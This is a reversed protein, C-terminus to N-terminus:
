RMATIQSRVHQQFEEKSQSLFMIVAQTKTLKQAVKASAPDKSAMLNRLAPVCDIASNVSFESTFLSGGRTTKATKMGRHLILEALNADAYSRTEDACVMAHRGPSLAVTQGAFSATIAQKKSDHLDYISTGNSGAVVLVVSDAAIAIEAHPTSVTMNCTPAFVASGSNMKHNASISSNAIAAPRVANPLSDSVLAADLAISVNLDDGYITSLADVSRSTASTSVLPNGIANSLTTTLQSLSSPQDFGNLITNSAPAIASIQDAESSSQSVTPTSSITLANITSDIRHGALVGAPVADGPPDATITVNSGIHINKKSMKDALSIVLDRGLANLAINTSKKTDIGKKPIFVGAGLTETITVGKPAKKRDQYPPVPLPGLAIFVEGVGATTGSGKITTGDNIIIKGTKKNVDLNQLIIDGETSTLQAGTAVTFTGPGTQVIKIDGNDSNVDHVTVPGVALLDVETAASVDLVDVGGTATSQVFVGGGDARFMLQSSNTIFRNNQDTGISGGTSTLFTGLPATITGTLDSNTIDDASSLALTQTTINGAITFSNGADITVSTTAVIAGTNTINVDGLVSTLVVIPSTLTQNSIVIDAGGAATLMLSSYTSIPSNLVIATGGPGAFGILSLNAVDNIGGVPTTIVGSATVNLTLTNNPSSLTGLQLAGADSVIITGDGNANLVNVSSNILATGLGVDVSLTNANLTTGSQGITNGAASAGRLTVSSANAIDGFVLNGNSLTTSTFSGGTATGNSVGINGGTVNPVAVALTVSGNTVTGTTNINGVTIGGEGIITVNGATNGTTTIDGLAITGANLSGTTAIATFKGGNGGSSSLDFDASGMNISGGSVSQNNPTLTYLFGNQVQGSTNPTFDYGAAMLLSGANGTDSLDILTLSGTININGQALIAFNQGAFIVDGSLNVDGTSNAITFFNNQFVLPNGTLTGIQQTTNAQVTVMDHGTIIAGASIVLTAGGSAVATLTTDGFFDQIGTFTLNGFSATINIDNATMTGGSGGNITLPSGPQSQINLTGGATLANTNTLVNTTINLDGAATVNGTTTIPIDSTLNIDNGTTLGLNLSGTGQVNIYIDGTASATLSVPSAGHNIQIFDAAAGIDGGLASFAITGADIIGTGHAIGSGATVSLSAGVINNLIINDTESVTIASGTTSATFSNVNTLVNIVGTGTTISLQGASILRGAGTVTGAGSTTFTIGGNATVNGGVTIDDGTANISLSGAGTSGALLNLDDTETISVNGNTALQLNTVNTNLTTAGTGATIGLTGGTITSTGTITNAGTVLLNVATAGTVAGNVVIAGGTTQLNVTSSTLSGTASVTVDGGTNSIFSIAGGTGTAQAQIQGAGTGVTLDGVGSTVSITGGPGGSVGNALLSINGTGTVNNGQLTITGGARATASTTGGNANLTSVGTFTLDGNPALVSITGGIGETAGVNLSAAIDVGGTGANSALISGGNGTTFGGAANLSAVSNPGGAGLELTSATNTSVNIIGGAGNVNGSVNLAGLIVNGGSRATINGGRVTLAGAVIDSNVLAGGTVTGATIGGTSKSLTVAGNFGSTNLSISGTGAAGGALTIPGNIAVGAFGGAIENKSSVVTVNGNSGAGNGNASIVTTSDTFVEGTDDTGYNALLTINGASGGAVTSNATLNALNNNDFDIRGGKTSPGTVTVSTANQTFNAGSIISINGASSTSSNSSITLGAAATFIDGGAVMLIGGPATVSGNLQLFTGALLSANNGNVTGVVVSSGASVRITSNTGTLNGLQAFGNTLIDIRAGPAVTINDTFINGATNTGTTTFDGSTISGNTKSLVVNPTTDPTSTSVYVNGSGGTGGVTNVSGRLGIANATANGAVVTVNGNVGTGSGGTTIVSTTADTLVEGSAPDSGAFAIMNLDGGSGNAATSRTNIAGTNNFDFDIFGGTASAGTVTVSTANQTFAAGAILSLDGASTTPSFTSLDIFGANAFINRGSVLLIGGPATIDNNLFIDRGATAAVSGSATVTNNLNLDTGAIIRANGTNIQNVSVTGGGTINLVGTAGQLFTSGTVDTGATINVTGANTAGLTTFTASNITLISLAGATLAGAQVSLGSNLTIDAGNSVTVNDIFLDSAAAPGNRFDGATISASNKQIVVNVTTNPTATAAWVDGTGALGGTLNIINRIGLGAGSSAGGIATFNGNAGTGNGGTLIQSTAPDTFVSGTTAAGTGDFAVMTIDGGSGNLFTSRADITNLAVLDFDINGGQASGGTITVSGANQTFAAGAIITIDGASATSTATVLDVGTSNPAIDRGAVLLIGQPATIDNDIDIFGGAVGSFSSNSQIPGGLFLDTGTAIFIRGSTIQAVQTQGGANITLTSTANVGQLINGAFVDNGATVVVTGANTSTFSTDGASTINLASNLGATLALATVDGGSRLTIDAGNSVTVNDIFLNSPAVAGGKFDGTTISASAKQIVVNTPSTVPTATAAYVDGTTLQTTSGTTNVSGRIGIGDGGAAQAIATFDGNAGTGNGGTRIVTLTPDTFVFGTGDTGTFAVMTVDGGSGNTFTSRSDINVIANNDFDIFGGTTSAGTVTVTTATQTFAAGAILTIDGGNATASNSNFSIGAANTIIDEGAVMLIGGPSTVSGNLSIFTGALVASNSATIAGVSVSTGASVRVVSNTAGLNGLQAFSNTLVTVSAGPANTINGAFIAGATNTGTTTFDGATISATTKSIDVNPSTDPVAASLYVNGQGGTGGATNVTGLLGIATFADAGAVVTFNGNVGTGNGGTFIQSTVADTFVSGTTAAGTGDFAVMTIDGGSGNTFTSRADITNLNVFDFDINGGQATGGTITVAGATQTFTAGAVITIDGASATATATRLDVGASNPTIDRGAVLLIGAPATIDNDLSIFGDSVGSFSSNSQIPGGLFLDSGAALFIRGSTIQAVQAQGGATITLQSTANVGQLINGAFVDGGATVNVTGANTSTFSTDGTSTINLASNLGANLAQADVNGGSRITIDAGNSVTVNNVIIDSAALAGGKFDGATIAASGKQLVVNTPSTVPTATAIYVDGTTVASGGTTNITGLNIGTFTSNNQAIVTVDGNTGAGNGGTTIATTTDTQVLGFGSSGNFAVLNVNGGNGAGGTSTTNIATLNLNDFFIGGGTASAGTVTVTTATQTFASGAIISVNGSNGSGSTSLSLNAVNTFVDKGSVLLIGSRATLNGNLNISDTTVLSISGTGANVANATLFDGARVNVAGQTSTITGGLLVTGNTQITINNRSTIAATQIDGDQLTGGAFNNTFTANSRTIVENPTTNPTASSLFVNGGTGTGGTTTLSGNIGIGFGTGGAIATFDGNAGIGNGGTTIVTTTDTAIFGTGNSGTFSILTIDGGVGNTATSRSTLAAVPFFDLDIVGGTTSAGTITITTATNTFAAGAIMVIDGGNTTASATSISPIAAASFISLGAVLSIGGPSTISGNLSIDDHSAVSLSAANTAPLDVQGTATINASGTATISSAIVDTGATILLNGGTSIGNTSLNTGTTLTVDGSGSIGTTVASTGANVTVTGAISAISTTTTSTSSILSVSGTSSIASTTIFQGSNLSTTGGATLNGVTIAEPSILASGTTFGGSLIAGSADDIKVQAATLAANNLTNLIINGTGATSGTGRANISGVDIGRAIITVNGNSNGAGGQATITSSQIFVEGNTLGDTSPFAIMQINGASTTGNSTITAGGTGNMYIGGGLGSSGTIWTEGSHGLTNQDEYAAGAVMLLSGGAGAGNATSITVGPDILINMGAIYTIPGGNTTVNGTISVNGTDKITPDGSVVFEGLNLDASQASIQATGSHLNVTGTLNKVDVTTAGDANNINFEKSLWDGGTINLDPKGAASADGFNINGNLAQVTGGDNNFNISGSTTGDVSPSTVNVNGNTASMSGANSISPADLNLNNHAVITASQGKADGNILQSGASLTLDGSSEIKGQNSLTDDARLKLDVNTALNSGLSANPVSSILGSQENTLNHTSISATSGGDRNAIAYISGFNTVDGKLKVDSSRSFDGIAAVQEPIVLSSLKLNDGSATLTEFNLDGGSARGKNDIVLTQGGHTSQLIAAYEAATVKSGATFTKEAGGVTVTISSSDGFLNQGLVIDSQASSLDLNLRADVNRTRGSDLAQLTKASILQGASQQRAERLSQRSERRSTALEARAIRPQQLTSVSPQPAIVHHFIPTLVPNSIPNAVIPNHMLPSKGHRELRQLLQQEHRAGRDFDPRDLRSAQAPASSLIFSVLVWLTLLRKPLDNQKRRENSGSPSSTQSQKSRQRLAQRKAARSDNGSNRSIM